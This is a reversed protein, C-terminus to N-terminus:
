MGETTTFSVLEALKAAAAGSDIAHAAAPIGDALHDVRGAAVLAAASNLLVVDRCPSIKGSLVQRVIAANEVADGGSIDELTARAM